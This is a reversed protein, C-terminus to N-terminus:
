KEKKKITLTHENITDKHTNFEQTVSDLTTKLHKFKRKQDELLIRLKEIELDKNQDYQKSNETQSQIQIKNQIYDIQCPTPTSYSILNGAPYSIDNYCRKKM